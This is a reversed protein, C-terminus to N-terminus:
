LGFCWTCNVIWCSRGYNVSSEVYQRAYFRLFRQRSTSSSHWLIHKQLLVANARALRKVRNVHNAIGKALKLAIITWKEYGPPWWKKSWPKKKWVISWVYKKDWPFSLVNMIRRYKGVMYYSCSKMFKWLKTSVFYLHLDCKFCQEGGKFFNIIQLICLPLFALCYGEFFNESAATTSFKEVQKRPHPVWRRWFMMGPQPPFFCFM